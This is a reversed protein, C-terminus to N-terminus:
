PCVRVHAKIIATLAVIAAIIEGESRDRSADDDMLLDTMAQTLTDLIVALEEKSAHEVTATFVAQELTIPKRM